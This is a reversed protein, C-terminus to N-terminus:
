YYTYTYYIKRKAGGNGTEAYDILGNEKYFYNTVVPTRIFETKDQNAKASYIRHPYIVTEQIIRSEEVMFKREKFNRNNIGTVNGDYYVSDLTSEYKTDKVTLLKGSQTDYNFYVELYVTDKSKDKYGIRNILYTPYYSFIYDEALGNGFDAAILEILYDRFTFDYMISIGGEGSEKYAIKTISNNEGWTIAYNIEAGDSFQWSSFNVAWGTQNVSLRTVIKGTEDVATVEKVGNSKLIEADKIIVDKLAYSYVAMSRVDTVRLYEDYQAAVPSCYLFSILLLTKITFIKM